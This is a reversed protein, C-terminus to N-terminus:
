VQSKLMNQSLIRELKKQNINDTQQWQLATVTIMGNRMYSIDSTKDETNWNLDGAVRYIGYDDNIEIEEIANTYYQIDQNAVRINNWNCEGNEPFNINVFGSFNEEIFVEDVFEKLFPFIEKGRKSTYRATSIALSPINYFLGEMAAGVTGSYIADSGLNFGDNVGSILLDPLDDKLYYELAFKVCDTPTGSLSFIRINEYEAPIKKLILDKQVTLAHSMGSQQFEPAIITVKWDKPLTNALDIIGPAMVGDDNSLLVHM